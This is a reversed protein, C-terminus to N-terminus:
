TSFYCIQCVVSGTVLAFAIYRLKENSIGLEYSIVKYFEDTRWGRVISCLIYNVMM